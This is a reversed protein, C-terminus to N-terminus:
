RQELRATAARMPVVHGILTVEIGIQATLGVEQRERLRQALAVHSQHQVDHRVVHTHGVIRVGVPLVHQFVPRARLERSEEVDIPARRFGVEGVLHEQREQAILVAAHEFVALKTQAVRATGEPNSEVIAAQRHPGACPDTDQLRREFGHAGAQRRVVRMEDLQLADDGRQASQRRPRHRIGLV